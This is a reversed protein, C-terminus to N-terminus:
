LLAQRTPHHLLPPLLIGCRRGDAGGIRQACIRLLYRIGCMEIYACVVRGLGMGEEGEDRM